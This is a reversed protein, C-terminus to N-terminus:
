RLLSMKPHQTAVHTLEEPHQSVAHPLSGEELFMTPETELMQLKNPTGLQFACPQPIQFNRLCM